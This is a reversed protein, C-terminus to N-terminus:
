EEGAPLNRAGQGNGLFVSPGTAWALWSARQWVLEAPILRPVLRVILGGAAPGLMALSILMFAFHYTLTAAFFRSFLLLLLLTLAIAGFGGFRFTVAHPARCATLGCTSSRGSYSLSAM